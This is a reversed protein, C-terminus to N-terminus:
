KLASSNEKGLRTLVIGQSRSLQMMLSSNNDGSFPVHMSSPYLCFSLCLDDSRNPPFFKNFEKGRWSNQRPPNQLVPHIWDKREFWGLAIWGIILIKRPVIALAALSHHTPIPGDAGAGWGSLLGGGGETLYSITIGTNTRSRQGVDFWTLLIYRQEADFWTFLTGRNQM